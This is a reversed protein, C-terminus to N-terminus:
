CKRVIMEKQLFGNLQFNVSPDTSMIIHCKETNGNM